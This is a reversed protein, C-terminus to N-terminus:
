LVHVCVCCPGVTVLCPQWAWQAGDYYPTFALPHPLLEGDMTRYPTPVLWDSPQRTELSVDDYRHRLFNCVSM